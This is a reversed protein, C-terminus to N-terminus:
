VLPGEGSLDAGTGTSVEGAGPVAGPEPEPERHTRPDRNDVVAIMGRVQEAGHVLQRITELKVKLLTLRLVTAEFERPETALDTLEEQCDLCMQEIGNLKEMLAEIKAQM